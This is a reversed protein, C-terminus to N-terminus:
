TGCLTRYRMECRTAEGDRGGLRGRAMNRAATEGLAAQQLALSLGRTQPQIEPRPAEARGSEPRAAIKDIARAGSGLPAGALREAKKLASGLVQKSYTPRTSGASLRARGGEVAGGVRLKKGTRGRLYVRARTEHAVM